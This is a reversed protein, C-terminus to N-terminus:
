IIELLLLLSYDKLSEFDATEESGVYNIGFPNFNKLEKEM